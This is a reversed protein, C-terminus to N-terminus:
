GRRRAFRLRSVANRWRVTSQRYTSGSCRVRREACPSATTHEHRFVFYWGLLFWSAAFAWSLAGSFQRGTFPLRLLYAAIWVTAAVGVCGVIRALTRGSDEEFMSAYRARFGALAYLLLLPVVAALSAVCAREGWSKDLLPPAGRGIRRFDARGTAGLIYPLAIAVFCLVLVVKARQKIQLIRSHM